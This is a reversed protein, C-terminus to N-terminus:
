TNPQLKIGQLFGFLTQNHCKKYHKNNPKRFFASVEHKSLTIDARQLILIVDESKLNLAIRLKQFVINNSLKEEPTPQEGDRKGRKLNIFGNLFAALEPHELKVFSEDSKSALWAGVQETTVIFDALAFTEAIASENLNFTNCIQRLTENTGLKSSLPTNM